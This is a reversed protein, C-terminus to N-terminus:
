QCRPGHRRWPSRSSGPTTIRRLVFLLFLRGLPLSNKETNGTKGQPCVGSVRRLAYAESARFLVSQWVLTRVPECHRSTPRIGAGRRLPSGQPRGNHRGKSLPLHRAAASPHFRVSTSGGGGEASGGKRFPAMKKRRATGSFRKPSEGKRANKSRQPILPRSRGGGAAGGKRFPAMKRGGQPARFVSRAKAKGRTKRGSRFLRGAEEAM